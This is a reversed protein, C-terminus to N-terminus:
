SALRFVTSKHLLSDEDGILFLESLRALWEREAILLRPNSVDGPLDFVLRTRYSTAADVVRGLPPQPGLIRALAAEGRESREYRRGAADIIDAVPRALGVPVRQADSAQEVTVVYFIGDATAQDAGSGLSTFTEVDRVTVMVHCDLYFGCFRKFQNPELVQERSTLSVAILGALYLGLWGAGIAAATKAREGRGRLVGVLAAVATVVVILATLLLLPIALAGLLSM